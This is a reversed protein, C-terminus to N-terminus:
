TVQRVELVRFAEAHCYGDHPGSLKDRIFRGSKELDLFPSRPCALIGQKWDIFDTIDALPIPKHIGYFPIKEARMEFAAFCPITKDHDNM